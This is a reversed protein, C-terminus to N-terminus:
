FCGFSCVGDLHCSFFVNESDQSFCPEFSQMAQIYSLFFLESFLQNFVFHRYYYPWVFPAFFVQEKYSLHISRLRRRHSFQTATDRPRLLSSKTSCPDRPCGGLLTFSYDRPCNLARYRLAITM